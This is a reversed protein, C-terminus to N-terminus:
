RTGNPLPDCSRNGMTACDWGPQDEELPAPAPAPAPSPTACRNRGTDGDVCGAGTAANLILAAAIVLLAALLM